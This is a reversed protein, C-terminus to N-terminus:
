LNPCFDVETLISNELLSINNLLEEMSSPNEFHEYIINDGNQVTTHFSAPGDQLIVVRSGKETTKVERALYLPNRM